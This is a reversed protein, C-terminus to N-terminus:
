ATWGKRKDPRDKPMYKVEIAMVVGEDDTHVKFDTMDMEVISESLPKQYLENLTM